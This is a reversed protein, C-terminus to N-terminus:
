GWAPTQEQVVAAVVIRRSEAQVLLVEIGEQLVKKVVGGDDLQLVVVLLQNLGVCLNGVAVEGRIQQFDRIEELRVSLAIWGEGEEAATQLNDSRVDDALPLLLVELENEGAALVFPGCEVPIRRFPQASVKGWPVGDVQHVQYLPSHEIGHLRRLHNDVLHLTGLISPLCM